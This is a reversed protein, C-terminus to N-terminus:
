GALACLGAGILIMAADRLSPRNRKSLAKSCVKNALEISTQAKTMIAITDDAKVKYAKLSVIEVRQAEIIGERNNLLTMSTDYNMKLKGYESAWGDVSLNLKELEQKTKITVSALKGRLVNGDEELKYIEKDKQVIVQNTVIAAKKLEAIAHEAVLADAKAQENVVKLQARITTNARCDSNWMSIILILAVALAAIIKKSLTM